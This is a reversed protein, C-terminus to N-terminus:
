RMSSLQVSDYTDCVVPKTKGKKKRLTIRVATLFLQKFLFTNGHPLVHSFPSSFVQSLHSCIFLIVPTPINYTYM